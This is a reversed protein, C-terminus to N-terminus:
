VEASRVGYVVPPMKMGMDTGFRLRDNLQDNLRFTQRHAAASLQLWRM